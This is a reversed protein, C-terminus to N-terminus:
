DKKLSHMVVTQDRDEQTQDRDGWGWVEHSGDGTRKVRRQVIDKPVVKLDYAWGIKAFLDIFATTTNFRYNGLESTKYDWPFAHHYNHWAEGFAFIAAVM